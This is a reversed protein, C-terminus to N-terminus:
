PFERLYKCTLTCRRYWFVCTALLPAPTTSVPLLNLSPPKPNKEKYTKCFIWRQYWDVACATLYKGLNVNTGSVGAAFQWRHWLCWRCIAVPTLSAPSFNGGTDIVAAAFQWRHWHRRRFIAVPTMSAPSLNGGPTYRSSRLDKCIKPFFKLSGWLISLPRPFSSENSFDSTACRM